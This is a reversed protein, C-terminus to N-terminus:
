CVLYDTLPTEISCKRRPSFVINSKNPNLKMEFNYKPTASLLKTKSAGRNRSLDYTLM